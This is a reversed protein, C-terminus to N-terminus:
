SIQFTYLVEEDANSGTGSPDSTITGTLIGDPSQNSIDSFNNMNWLVTNTEGGGETFCFCFFILLFFGVFLFIILLFCCGVFLFNNRFFLAFFTFLFTYHIHNWLKYVSFIGLRTSM